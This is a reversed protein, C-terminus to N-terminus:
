LWGQHRLIVLGAVFVALSPWYVLPQVQWAVTEVIVGAAGAITLLWTGAARWVVM